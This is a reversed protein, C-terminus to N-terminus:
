TVKYLKIRKLCKLINLHIDYIQKFKPITIKKQLYIDMIIKSTIKSQFNFIKFMKVTNNKKLIGSHEDVFWKNNKSIIETTFQRKSRNNILTLNSGNNTVANVTGYFDYFGFRKTLYIEKAFFLIKKISSNTLWSLLFIHHLANSAINWTGGSTLMTIKKLKKNKLYLFKKDYCRPLNVYVSKFNLLKKIKKLNDIKNSILKELIWYKIKKQKAIEEIVLHRKLSTTCIICFDLSKPIKYYNDFIIIKKKIYKAYISNVISIQKPDIDKVFICMNKKKMTVLSRLYHRGLNGVGVLLINM